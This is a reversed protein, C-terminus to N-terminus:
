NIGAFKNLLLLQVKENFFLSAASSFLYGNAGYAKQNICSPYFGYLRTKADQLKQMKTNLASTTDAFNDGSVITYTLLMATLPSFGKAPRNNTLDWTQGFVSPNAVAYNVLNMRVQEEIKSRITGRVLLQAEPTALAKLQNSADQDSLDLYYGPFVAIDQFKANQPLDTSSFGRASVLIKSIDSDTLSSVQQLATDTLTDIFKDYSIFPQKGSITATQQNTLQARVSSSINLGSRLEISNSLSNTAVSPNSNSLQTESLGQSIRSIYDTGSAQAAKQTQHLSPLVLVGLASIIALSLLIGKIKKSHQNM